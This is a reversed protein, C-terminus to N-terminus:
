RLLPPRPCPCSCRGSRCGGPSSAPPRKRPARPFSARRPALFRDSKSPLMLQAASWASLRLEADDDRRGVPQVHALLQRPDLVGTGVEDVDIHHLPAEARLE